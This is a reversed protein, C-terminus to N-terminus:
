GILAGGDCPGGSALSAQVGVVQTGCLEVFNCPQAPGLFGAQKSCGSASLARQKCTRRGHMYNWWLLVATVCDQVDRLHAQAQM